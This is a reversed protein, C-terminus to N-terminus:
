WRAQKLWLEVDDVCTLLLVDAKASAIFDKQQSTLIWNKEGDKVEAVFWRGRFSLLLDPVGNGVAALSTVHVGAQRLAHAIDLHNADVRAARRM